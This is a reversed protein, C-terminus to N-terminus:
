GRGCGPREATGALVPALVVLALVVLALVALALLPVTLAREGAGATLGVGDASTATTTSGM